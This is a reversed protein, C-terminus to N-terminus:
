EIKGSLTLTITFDILSLIVVCADFVNYYDRLYCKPGLGIIKAIAELCFLWTFVIDANELFREKL